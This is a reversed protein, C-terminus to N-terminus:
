VSVRSARAKEPTLIIEDGHDHDDGAEGAHQETEDEHDHDHDHGKSGCAAMCVALVFLSLCYFSKKLM